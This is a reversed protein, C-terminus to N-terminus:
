RCRDNVAGAPDKPVGSPQTCQKYAILHHGEQPLYPRFLTCDGCARTSRTMDPLSSGHLAGAVLCCALQHIPSLM